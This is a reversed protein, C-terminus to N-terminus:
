QIYRKRSKLDAYPDPKPLRGFRPAPVEVFPFHILHHHRSRCPSSKSLVDKYLEGVAEDWVERWMHAGGGTADLGWQDVFARLDFRHREADTPIPIDLATTPSAHPLLLLVYRHYPTGQQPHPPIYPLHPVPSIRTIRRAASLPINPRHATHLCLLFPSLRFM